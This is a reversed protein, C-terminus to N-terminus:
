NKTLNSDMIYKARIVNDREVYLAAEGISKYLSDQTNIIVCLIDNEILLAKLLEAKHIEATTYIKIWNNNVNNAQILLSFM